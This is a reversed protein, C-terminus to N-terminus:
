ARELLPDPCTTYVRSIYGERMLLAACWHAWGVKSQQLHTEFIGAKQSATLEAVCNKLNKPSAHNYAQPYSTKIAQIWEQATPMGARLSCEDGMLLTGGRKAIKSEVLHDIFQNIVSSFKM